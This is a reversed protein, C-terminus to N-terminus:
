KQVVMVKSGVVAGDVILSYYYIGDSLQSGDILIMGKNQILKYTKILVGLPTAIRIEANHNGEASIYEAVSYDSFPNPKNISLYNSSSKFDPVKNINSNAKVLKDTMGRKGFLVTNMFSDIRLTDCVTYTGCSDRITMCVIYSTDSHMFTHYPNKYTSTGGDGFNWSYNYLHENPTSVDSFFVTSDFQYAIVFQPTVTSDRMVLTQDYEVNNGFDILTIRYNKDRTNTPVMNFYDSDASLSTWTTDDLREWKIRFEENLISLWSAYGDFIMSAYGDTLYGTGGAYGYTGEVFSKLTSNINLMTEFDGFSSSNGNSSIFSNYYTIFGPDRFIASRLDDNNIFNDIAPPGSFSSLHLLMYHTFYKAFNSTSGQATNYIDAYGGDACHWALGLFVAANFDTGLIVSQNYCVETDMGAYAWENHSVNVTDFDTCTGDTASFVYQIPEPPTSIPTLSYPDSLYSTTTWSFTYSSAGTVIGQLQFATPGVPNNYTSSLHTNVSASFPTSVTGYQSHGGCDNTLTVSVQYIQHGKLTFSDFQFTDPLYGYFSKSYSDLHTNDANKTTDPEQTIEFSCYGYKHNSDTINITLTGFGACVTTPVNIYFRPTDTIYIYALTDAHVNCDNVVDITLRHLTKSKFYYCIDDPLTHLLHCPNDGPPVSDQWMTDKICTDQWHWSGYSDQLYLSDMRCVKITTFSSNLIRNLHICMPEGPCLTDSRVQFYALPRMFNAHGWERNKVPNISDLDCIAISSLGATLITDHDLITSMSSYVGATTGAYSRSINFLNRDVTDGTTKRFEIHANPEIYIYSGPDTIIEGYGCSGSDGIQVFANDKIVLSGNEKVWIAGGSKLYTYSGSDLILASGASVIIASSNDNTAIKNIGSCPDFGKTLTQCPGEIILSDRNRIYADTCMDIRTGNTLHLLGTSNTIAMKHSLTHLEKDNSTFTSDINVPPFYCDFGCLNAPEIIFNTTGAQFTITIFKWNTSDDYVIPLTDQFGKSAKMPIGNLLDPICFTVHTTTACSISGGYKFMGKLSYSCTIPNDSQILYSTDYRLFTGFFLSAKRFHSYSVCNHDRYEPNTSYSAFIIKADTELVSTCADLNFPNIITDSSNAGNRALNVDILTDFDGMFSTTVNSYRDTTRNIVKAIDHTSAICKEPTLVTTFTVDNTSSVKAYMQSHEGNNYVGEGKPVPCDWVTLTNDDDGHDYKVADFTVSTNSCSIVAKLGWEAQPSGILGSICPYKWKGTSGDRTFSSTVDNNGNANINVRFDESTHDPNKLIDHIVYYYGNERNENVVLVDREWLGKYDFAFYKVGNKDEFVDTIILGNNQYSPFINDPVQNDVTCNNHHNWHSVFDTSNDGFHPPDIALLASKGSTDKVEIIFSGADDHEHAGNTSSGDESLFHFYHENGEFDKGRIVTNGSPMQVKNPPYSHCTSPPNLMTLYDERLDLGTIGKLAKINHAYDKVYHFENSRFHTLALCANFYSHHYTDDYSPAADDPQTINFYWKYLNEYDQDFYYNKVYKPAFDGWFSSYSATYDWPKYNYKGIFFPLLSEFSYSFYHPGEAFGHVLNATAMKGKIGNSWYTGNSWMTNHINYNASGAWRRPWRNLYTLEDGIDNLEVAASGLAAAAILTLNNHALYASRQAINHMPEIWYTKLDKIAFGILNTANQDNVLHFDVFQGWRVMDLTQILMLLEKSRYQMELKIDEPLSGFGFIYWSALASPMLYTMKDLAAAMDEYGSNRCSMLMYLARDRYGVREFGSEIWLASDGVLDIKLGVLFVFASAKAFGPGNSVGAGNCATAKAADTNQSLTWIERYIDYYNDEKKIIKSRIKEIQNWLYAPNNSEFLFYPGHSSRGDEDWQGYSGFWNAIKNIIWDIGDRKSKNKQNKNIGANNFNSLNLSYFDDKFKSGSESNKALINLSIFQIAILTAIRFLSIFHKM